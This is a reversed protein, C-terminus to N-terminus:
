EEARYFWGVTAAFALAGVLSSVVSALSLSDHELSIDSFLATYVEGGLLAGGVSVMVDSLYREHSTRRLLLSAIAGVFAGM